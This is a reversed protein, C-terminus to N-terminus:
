WKMLGSVHFRFPHSLSPATDIPLLLAMEHDVGVHGVHENRVKEVAQFHFPVSSFL